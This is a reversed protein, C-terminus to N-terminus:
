VVGLSLMTNSSAHMSGLIDMNIDLETFGLYYVLKSTFSVIIKQINQYNTSLYSSVRDVGLNIYIKNTMDYQTQRNDYYNDTKYENIKNLILPPLNDIYLQLFHQIDMIVNWKSQTEPFKGGLSQDNSIMAIKVPIVNSNCGNQITLLINNLDSNNYTDYGSFTFLKYIYNQLIPMSIDNIPMLLYIEDGVNLNLKKAISYTIIIDNINLKFNNGYQKKFNRGFEMNNEKEIDILWFSFSKIQNGSIESCNSNNSIIENCGNEDYIDLHNINFHTSCHTSFLYNISNNYLLRPSHYHISHKNLISSILSYNFFPGVKPTLLIDYEGFIQEAQRFFVVAANDILTYCLASIVVVIFVSCIGLCTNCKHKRAETMSYTLYFKMTPTVKMTM